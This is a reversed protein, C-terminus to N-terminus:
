EEEDAEEALARIGSKERLDKTTKAGLKKLMETQRIVNGTGETLQNSAKEFATQAQDLEFGIATFSELFLVVKDYLLGAREVLALQNKSQKEKKWLDQIMMLIVMITTGSVIKVRQDAVLGTYLEPNYRMADIYASELPVIMLVFDLTNISKMHSYNASALKKVHSKISECHEKMAAEREDEDTANVFQTYATLSVKSDLVVQRDGPLNVVFDTRKRSKDAATESLQTVYDRGEEFGMSQLLNEVVVEGWAGQTGSDGKLANTLAQTDSSLQLGAKEVAGIKTELTTERRIREREVQEVSNFYDGLSKSLDETAKKFSGEKEKDAAEVADSFAKTAALKYTDLMQNQTTQFAEERAELQARVKVLETEAESPGSDMKQKALLWGIAGGALIGGILYVVDLMM